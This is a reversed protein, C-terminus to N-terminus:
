RSRFWKSPDVIINSPSDVGASIDSKKAETKEREVFYELAEQYGAEAALVTSGWVLNSFVLFAMVKCM